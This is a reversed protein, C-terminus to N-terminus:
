VHARGIEELMGAIFIEKIKRDFTVEHSLFINRSLQQTITSGGQTIERNKLFSLSARAIAKYDIGKHEYFKRDETTVFALKVMYPINDSTLYYCDKQASMSTIPTGKKDYIISTLNSSFADRGMSNVLASAEKKYAQLRFFIIIASFLFLGCLTLLGTVLIKKWAKPNKKEKKRKKILPM